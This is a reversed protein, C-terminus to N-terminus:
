FSTSIFLQAVLCVKVKFTHFDNSFFSAQFLGCTQIYKFFLCISIVHNFEALMAGFPCMNSKQWAKENFHPCFQM